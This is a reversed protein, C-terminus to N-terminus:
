VMMKKCCYKSFKISKGEAFGAMPPEWVQFILGTQDCSPRCSRTRNRQMWPTRLSSRTTKQPAGLAGPPFSSLYLHYFSPLIIIKGRPSWKGLTTQLLGTPQHKTRFTRNSLSGGTSGWGPSATALSWPVGVIINLIGFTTLFLFLRPQRPNSSRTVSSTRKQLLVIKALSIWPHVDKYTNSINMDEFWHSFYCRSNSRHIKTFTPYWFAPKGQMWCLCCSSSSFSHSFKWFRGHSSRSM